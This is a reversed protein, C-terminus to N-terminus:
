KKSLRFHGSTQLGSRTNSGGVNLHTGSISVFVENEGRERSWQRFVILFNKNSDTRIILHDSYIMIVPNSWLRSVNYVMRLWLVISQHDLLEEYDTIFLLWKRIDALYWPRLFNNWGSDLSLSWQSSLTIIDNDFWVNKRKVRIM